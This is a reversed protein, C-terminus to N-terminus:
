RRSVRRGRSSKAVALAILAIAISVWSEPKFSEVTPFQVGAAMAEKSLPKVIESVKPLPRSSILIPPSDLSALNASNLATPEPEVIRVLPSEVASAPGPNQHTDSVSGALLIVKLSGASCGSSDVRYVSGTAVTSLTFACDKASGTRSLSNITLGLVQEDFRIEFSPSLAKNARDLEQITATPAVNDSTTENGISESAPGLNGATDTASLPKLTLQSESQCGSLWIQYSSGQGDLKSFVCSSGTTFSASTLGTVPESFELRYEILDAGVSSSQYSLVAPAEYDTVAIESTVDASPGGNGSADTVQNALLRLSVNAASQCGTVPIAAESNNTMTITGLQCGSGSLQFASATPKPFSETSTLRFVVPNSNTPTTPSVIQFSPAQSDISLTSSALTEVTPGSGSGIVANPRLSLNLTGNTCGTVKVTFNYGNGTASAVSCGSATGALKFDFPDLDYVLQDFTISYDANGTASNAPTLLTFATVAPAFTYRLVVQGHGSRVGAQHTVATTLAMTAFSSGGGGGSGDLGGVVSDAGGGGGGFFGGGGGGGGAISGSGGTGGVGLTGSTGNGTTVGIGGAGGSIQTGGGGATGSPNGKSGAGAITLGGPGGAGGIWGGTGGGGGAVVVRDGSNSTTRLESAGGGSGQDGHGNGSMGGGNFGGPASNASFGMGGVLVTLSSPIVAFDGSVLGGKGGSRGGQAGYVDFHLSSAKAPPSWVYSDGSYDFTVWCTGELCIPAPNPSVAQSPATIAFGVTTALALTASVLKLWRRSKNTHM